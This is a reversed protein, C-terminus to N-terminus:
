RAATLFQQAVALADASGGPADEIFVALALDGQIVTVWGHYRM